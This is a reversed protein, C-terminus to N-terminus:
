GESRSDSKEALLDELEKGRLPHGYSQILDSADILVATPVGSIGFLQSIHDDSDAIVPVDLGYREALDTCDERGGRCIIVIRGQVKCNLAHMESLTLTCARCGASVFLLARLRGSYDASRVPSGLLDLATFEPAREGTKLRSDPGRRSLTPSAQQIQYVMRVLGLLVLSQFIVLLWLAGYSLIFPISGGNTM